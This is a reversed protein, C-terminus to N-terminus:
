SQGGNTTGKTNTTEREAIALVLRCIAEARTAYYKLDREASIRAGNDHRVFAHAAMGLRTKGVSWQVCREDLWGGCLRLAEHGNPDTSFILDDMFLSESGDPSDFRERWHAGEGGIRPHHQWGLIRLVAADLEVGITATM